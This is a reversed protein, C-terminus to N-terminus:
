NLQDSKAYMTRSIVMINKHYTTNEINEMNM